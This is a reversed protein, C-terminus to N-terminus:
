FGRVGQKKLSRMTDGVNAAHEDIVAVGGFVGPFRKMSDLMYRNDFGYYSMQILVARSVGCPRAQALLEEPTFSAPAMDSPKFPAALPYRAVDPTWVHSHADILGGALKANEAQQAALANPEALMAIAVGGALSAGQILLERRSPALASHSATKM